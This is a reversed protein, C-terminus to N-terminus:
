AVAALRAAEARAKIPLVVTFRTGKGVESTVDIRGGHSEIIKYSISLGLGTGKGIDKTTFFPDFIKPMVDKPIGHGNDIVDVAVHDADVMRSRLTIKGGEEPTAQAANTVLNLLVQNLQSPACTIKPLEALLKRVTKGKLLHRAIVLTSGIGENVDFEALKSRDLRSFDRLSTVLESIREIGHRGDDVLTGLEALADHSKMAALRESVAAYRRALEAEDADAADLAAVLRETESAMGEIEPLRTGVADLSSKVYALPTNVEHAIGAVMQGLSSMKESQVLMAESHKLLALADSLERTRETVRQELTENAHKLEQNVRGIVRFSEALRWAYYGLVVLLFASYFLLYVRYRDADALADDFERELVRSLTDLRPGTPALTFEDILRDRVLRSEALRHAGAVLEGPAVGAGSAAAAVREAATALAAATATNAQAAFRASRADFDALRAELTARVAESTDRLSSRLFQAAASLAASAEQEDKAIAALRPGLEAKADFAQRAAAANQVALPTEIGVGGALAQAAERKGASFDIADPNQGARLAFAFTNWRDEIEGLTRLAAIGRTHARLDDARASLYFYLWGGVLILASAVIALLRLAKM